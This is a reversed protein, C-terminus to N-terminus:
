LSGRSCGLCELPSRWVGIGGLAQSVPSCAAGHDSLMVLKKGERSANAFDNLGELLKPWEKPARVEADAAERAM